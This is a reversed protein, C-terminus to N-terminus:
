HVLYYDYLLEKNTKDLMNWFECSGGANHYKQLMHHVPIVKGGVVDTGFWNVGSWINRAVVIGMNNSIWNFFNESEVVSVYSSKDAM